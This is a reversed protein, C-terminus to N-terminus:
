QGTVVSFPRMDKKISRGERKFEAGQWKSINLWVLISKIVIFCFDQRM